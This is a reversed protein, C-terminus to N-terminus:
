SFVGDRRSRFKTFRYQQSHQTKHSKESSKFVVCWLTAEDENNYKKKEGM